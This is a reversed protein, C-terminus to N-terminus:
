FTLTPIFFTLGVSPFQRAIAIKLDGITATDVTKDALDVTIPLKRAVSPPKGASSVTVSVM